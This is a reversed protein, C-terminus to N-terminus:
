GAAAGCAPCAPDRVLPLTVLDGTRVDLSAMRGVLPEGLGTLVKIAEAAQLAGTAGCVPGFVPPRSDTEDADPFVCEFCPSGPVVVSCRGSYGGIAAWVEPVGARQCARNVVRRTSVNDCCDLVIDSSAMLDSATKDTVRAVAPTVTVDPNLAVLRGAAAVAKPTGVDATTYLVQRHLNTAEIVDDDVVVLHGVGAGVLYVLASCGLGGAGIVVVTAACLAAQGAEDFGPLRVQRDYRSM